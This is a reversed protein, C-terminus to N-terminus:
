LLCLLSRIKVSINKNTLSFSSKNSAVCKKKKKKNVTCLKKSEEAPKFRVLMKVPVNELYHNVSLGLLYSFFFVHVASVYFVFVSHAEM